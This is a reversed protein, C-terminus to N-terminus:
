AHRPPTIPFAWGRCGVLRPTGVAAPEEVVRRGRFTPVGIQPATTLFARPQAMVTTGAVRTLSWKPSGGQQLSSARVGIRPASTLFVRPQARVKTGAVRTLGRRRPMSARCGGASGGRECSSGCATGRSTTGSTTGPRSCKRCTAKLLVFSALATVWFFVPCAMMCPRRPSTPSCARAAVM